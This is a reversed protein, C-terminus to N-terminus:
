WKPEGLCHKENEFVKKTAEYAEEGNDQPTDLLRKVRGKWIHEEPCFLAVSGVHKDKKLPEEWSTEM